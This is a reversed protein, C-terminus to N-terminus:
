SQSINVTPTTTVPLIAPELSNCEEKAFICVRNRGRLKAQYMAQDADHMLAELKYSSGSTAAVGFSATLSFDYGSDRTYLEVLRLRLREAMEKAQMINTQPLLVCFEEGGVRGLVDNHRCVQRSVQAVNRLAWDGTKHGKSDNIQKFHDIDFMVCSVPEQHQQSCELLQHALATFHTRSFINTLGDYEALKRFHRQNRWSQAAGLILLAIVCILAVILDRQTHSENEALKQQLTLVKNQQNLLTIRNQQEISQHQALQYAMTKTKIEDLNAKDAEAYNIYADLAAANDGHSRYYQYLVKYARTRAGNLPAQSSQVKVANNAARFAKGQMNLQWYAESLVSYYEGITPQYGTKLLLPMQQELKTLTEEPHGDSLYGKAQVGIIISAMLIEGNAECQTIADSFAQASAKIYGLQSAADLALQAAFCTQRETTAIKKLQESYTYGLQYQGLANYFIAAVMISLSQLQENKISEKQKLADDLYQLGEIWNKLIAFENVISIKARFKQEQDANSQLLNKYISIAADIDGKFALEYGSLYQLYYTEQESLELSHKRIENLKVSFTRPDSSRIEDAAKLQLMFDSALTSVSALSLLLIILKFYRNVTLRMMKKPNSM